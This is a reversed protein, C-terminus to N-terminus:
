KRGTFPSIGGMMLQEAMQDEKLQHKIYEAIRSTNKGATDVYYGKCWFERNRYKYKLEGFQEYLMTSSKGKLYGMFSSIAFKPPIELLMHIHDSCVEAEIIKVGKWECLQRLIKGIAM